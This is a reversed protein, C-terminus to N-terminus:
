ILPKIGKPFVFDKGSIEKYNKLYFKHRKKYHKISYSRYGIAISLAQYSGIVCAEAIKIRMSEM